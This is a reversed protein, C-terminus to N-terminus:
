DEDKKDKTKRALSELYEEIVREESASLEEEETSELDSAYTQALKIILETQKPNGQLASQAAKLIVAELVSVKRKRDGDNLTIKREVVDRIITAPSKTAKPRGKPNGSEGLEYQYDTPPKCYGVAYDGPRRPPKRKM